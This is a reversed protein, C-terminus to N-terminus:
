DEVSRITLVVGAHDSARADTPVGGPHGLLSGDLARVRTGARAFVFDVRSDLIEESSESLADDICCTAGDRHRPLTLWQDQFGSSTLARYAASRRLRLPDSNCDCVVVVPTAVSAPGIALERAQHFGILSDRVELHTNVFRFREGENVVDVWQYGRTLEIGGGPAPLTYQDGYHARGAELVDLGDRVLVVDRLTIRIDRPSEGNPGVSPVELDGEDLRVAVEYDLDRDDLAAMLIAEFDYDVLYSDTEGLNDLELPGSRWLAVEQLGVLDPEHEAIEDAIVAARRTFDTVDVTQRAEYAAAAVRQAVEDRSTGPGVEDFIRFIPFLDTGLYLNRTMVTVPESLGPHARASDSGAAAPIWIAAALALTAAARVTQM